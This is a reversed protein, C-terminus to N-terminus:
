NNVVKYTTQNGEADTGYYVTDGSVKDLKNSLSDKITIKDEQTEDVNIQSGDILINTTDKQPTVGNVSNVSGIETTSYTTQQGDSTTGYIVKPTVILLISCSINNCHM